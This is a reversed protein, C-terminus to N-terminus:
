PRGCWRRCPRTRFLRRRACRRPSGTGCAPGYNTAKANRNRLTSPPSSPSGSPIAMSSFRAMGCSGLFDQARRGALARLSPAPVRVPIGVDLGVGGCLRPRWAPCGQWSVAAWANALDPNFKPFDHAVRVQERRENTKGSTVGSNRLWWVCTRANVMIPTYGSLSPHLHQLLRSLQTIVRCPRFGHFCL